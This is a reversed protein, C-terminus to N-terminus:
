PLIACWCQKNKKPKWHSGDAKSCRESVCKSIDVKEEEEKKKKKKKAAEPENV